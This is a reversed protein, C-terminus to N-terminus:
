RLSRLPLSSSAFSVPKKNEEEEEANEAISKEVAKASLSAQM